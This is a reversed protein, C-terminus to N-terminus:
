IAYEPLNRHKEYSEILENMARTLAGKGKIQNITMYKKIIQLAKSTPRFSIPNNSM